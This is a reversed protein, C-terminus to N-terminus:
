RWRAIALGIVVILVVVVPWPNVEDAGNLLIAAIYVVLAAIGYVIGPFGARTAWSLAAIAVEILLIWIMVWFYANGLLDLETGDGDGEGDGDGDGGPPGNGGPITGQSGTFSGGSALFICTSQWPEGVDNDDVYAFANLTLTGGEHVFWQSYINNDIKAGLDFGMISQDLSENLYVFRDTNMVSIYPSTARTDVRFIFDEPANPDLGIFSGGVQFPGNGGSTFELNVRWNSGEENLRVAVTDAFAGTTHTDGVSTSSPVASDFSFVARFDTNQGENGADVRFWVEATKVTGSWGKGVSAPDNGGSQDAEMIYGDSFGAQTADTSDFTITSDVYNYGFDADPDGGFNEITPDSCWDDAPSLQSYGAFTINEYYTIGNSASASSPNTIASMTITFISPPNMVGALSAGDVLVSAFGQSPDGTFHKSVSFSEGGCDFGLVTFHWWQDVTLAGSLAQQATAGTSTTLGATAIGSGAIDIWFFSGDIQNRFDIRYTNTFGGSGGKFADTRFDFEIVQADNGTCAYILDTELRPTQFNLNQNQGISYGNLRLSQGDLAPTSVLNIGVSTSGSTTYVWNPIRNASPIPPYFGPSYEDWDEEVSLAQGEVMPLAFLSFLVMLSAAARVARRPETPGATASPSPRPPAPATQREKLSANLKRKIYPISM